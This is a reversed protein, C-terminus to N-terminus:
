PHRLRYFKMGNTTITGEDVYFHSALVSPTTVVPSWNIAPLVPSSGLLFGPSNTEWRLIVHNTCQFVALYQTTGHSPPVVPSQELTLAYGFAENLGDDRVLVYFNGTITSMCSIHAVSGNPGSSTALLDGNPSYLQMVPNLGSGSTKQLSLRLTDGVSVPFVYADLDGVEIQALRTQNPLLLEGGEGPEPLNPGPYKTMCLTYDFAQDIECERVEVLYTGTKPLTLASHFVRAGDSCNDSRFLTTYPFLTLRPNPVGNTRLLALTIVDRVSGNFTFFDQDMVGISGRSIRGPLLPEPDDGEEHHNVGSAIVSYSLLYDFTQDLECERVEVLYTGTKPLTLASHFVRAGDSCND